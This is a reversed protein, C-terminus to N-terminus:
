APADGWDAVDQPEGDRLASKHAAVGAAMFRAAEWANIAPPRDHAVADVFEHVLYAHSGGHGGYMDNKGCERRFADAVERPLPDRMKEPTLTEWHEKDAWRNERFAGKTGFVRFTEHEFLEGAPYALERYECIRVSAGNSMRYLATVNTFEHDSFYPDGSRTRWGFATAKVAHARMVTMPGSVSHTPYAMPTSKIGRADYGAQIPLWEQGAASAERAKKVARLDSVSWDHPHFYEGEAYVIEGFAGEHAKRRCFMAQPRYWTTEGLMYHQGTKQAARVVRDCWDLIEDVDPLWTVPVASYVHKGSEM